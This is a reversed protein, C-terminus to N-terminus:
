KTLIGPLQREIQQITGNGMMLKLMLSEMNQAHAHQSLNEAFWRYYELNHLAVKGAYGIEDADLAGLTVSSESLATQFTFFDYHQYHNLRSYVHDVAMRCWELGDFSDAGAATLLAISWPNGTGLVHLNQYFPLEDLKRRIKQVTAAREILGSGLEREAIAILSPRLADSVSRVVEPLQSADFGFKKRNEAKRPDFRSAHVIPLVNSGSARADREVARIVQRAAKGADASPKMVDYCYCWDYPIGELADHFNEPRWSKDGRKSAEYNGSDVLVIHGMARIKKLEGIIGAPRRKKWLDYASVLVATAGFVRLTRVAELPILQTEHSSVSLFVAPLALNSGIISKPRTPPLRRPVVSSIKRLLQQFDAHGETSDWNRFYMCSLNGYPYPIKADDIIVPLIEKGADIALRMEDIVTDKIVATKSLMAVVIKTGAIEKQIIKTFNGVLPDDWWVDWHSKLLSVVKNTIIKDDSSYIIYVDSM